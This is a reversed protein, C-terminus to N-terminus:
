PKITEKVKTRLFTTFHDSRKKRKLKRTTNKRSLWHIIKAQFLFELLLYFQLQTKRKFFTTFFVLFLHFFFDRTKFRFTLGSWVKTFNTVLDGFFWLFSINRQKYFRLFLFMLVKVVKM